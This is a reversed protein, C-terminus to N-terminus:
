RAKASATARANKRRSKNGNITLNEIFRFPFPVKRSEVVAELSVATFTAFLAVVVHIGLIEPGAVLYSAWLGEGLIIGVLPYGVMRLWHTSPRELVHHWVVGFAYAFVVMTVVPALQEM